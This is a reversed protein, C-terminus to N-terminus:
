KWEAPFDTGWGDNDDQAEAESKEEWDDDAEEKAEAVDEESVTEVEVPEEVPIEEVPATEEAVPEEAPTEAVVEPEAEKDVVKEDDSFSLEDDEKDESEVAGEPNALLEELTKGYRKVIPKEWFKIEKECASITQKYSEKEKAIIVKYKEDIEKLNKEAEAKSKKFNELIGSLSQLSQLEVDTLM